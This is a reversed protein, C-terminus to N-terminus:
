RRKPLMKQLKNQREQTRARNGYIFVGVLSALGSLSLTGGFWDRGYYAAISGGAIAVVGLTLGCVMGLYARVSDHYLVRQEIQMRHKSQDEAMGLIRAAAGAVVEDYQKLMAPPPIPGSYSASVEMRAIDMLPM